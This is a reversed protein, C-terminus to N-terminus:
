QRWLCDLLRPTLVQTSFLPKTDLLGRKADLRHNSDRRSRQKKCGHDMQWLNLFLTLFRLAFRKCLGSRIPFLIDDDRCLTPNLYMKPFVQEVTHNIVRPSSVFNSSLFHTNTKDYPKVLSRSRSYLLRPSFLHM